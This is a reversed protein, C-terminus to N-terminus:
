HLRGSGTPGATRVMRLEEAGVLPDLEVTGDLEFGVKRYFAIARDNGRLVWLHVASSPLAAELLRTAVGAGQHEEAVYLSWLETDTPADVDRPPGVSAWGIPTGADDHAVLTVVGEPSRGTAAHTAAREQWARTNAVDDRAELVQEPVLGTYTLRWLRNQLVAVAAADEPALARIDPSM